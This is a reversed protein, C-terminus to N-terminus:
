ATLKQSWNQWQGEQPWKTSLSSPTKSPRPPRSNCRASTFTRICSVSRPPTTPHWSAFPTSSLLRERAWTPRLTMQTWSRTQSPTTCGLPTPLASKFGPWISNMNALPTPYFLS